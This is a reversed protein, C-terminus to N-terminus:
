ASTSEVGLWNLADARSKFFDVHVGLNMGATKFFETQTDPVHGKVVCAMALGPVLRAAAAANDFSDMTTMRRAVVEGETLVRRMGFRRCAAGIETWLRNMREPTIEFGPVLQAHLYDERAELVAETQMLLSDEKPEM